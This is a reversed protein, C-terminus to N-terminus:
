LSHYALQDETGPVSPALGKGCNNAASRPNIYTRMAQCSDCSIRRDNVLWVENDKYMRATHVDLIPTRATIYLSAKACIEQVYRHKSRPLDM